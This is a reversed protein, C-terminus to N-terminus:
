MINCAKRLAYWNQNTLIVGSRSTPSEVTGTLEYRGIYFGKYKIVSDIMANYEEVMSESFAKM